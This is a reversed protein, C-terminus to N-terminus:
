ECYYGQHQTIQSAGVDLPNTMFIASPGVGFILQHHWADPIEEGDPVARQMNMTAVPVAGRLIWRALWPVLKIRRRPYLGFFRGVVHGGSAQEAGSILQPHTAGSFCFLTPKYCLKGFM